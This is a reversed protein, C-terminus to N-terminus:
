KPSVKHAQPDRPQDSRVRLKLRLPDTHNALPFCLAANRALLKLQEAQEQALYQASYYGIIDTETMSATRLGLRVAVLCLLCTLGVFVIWVPHPLRLSQYLRKVIARFNKRGRSGYFQDFIADGAGDAVAPM